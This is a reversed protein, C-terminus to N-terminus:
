LKDKVQDWFQRVGEFFGDEWAFFEESEQDEPPNLDFRGPNAVYERWTDDYLYWEYQELEGSDFEAGQKQENTTKIRTALFKLSEYGEKRAIQLGEKFGTERWSNETRAKETRLRTIIEQLDPDGQVAETKREWDRIKEDLAKQCVQSVNLKEKYKQLRAHLPDPITITVPKSM